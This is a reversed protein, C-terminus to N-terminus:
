PRAMRIRGSPSIASPSKRGSSSSSTGSECGPGGSCPSLHLWGSVTRRVMSGRSRSSRFRGPSRKSSGNTTRGKRSRSKKRCGSRRQRIAIAGSGTWASSSSHDSGSWSRSPPPHSSRGNERFKGLDDPRFRSVTWKPIRRLARCDFARIEQDHREVIPPIHSRRYVAQGSGRRHSVRRGSEWERVIKQAAEWSRVDPARRIM